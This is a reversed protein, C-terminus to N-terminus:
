ARSGRIGFIAMMSCILGWNILGCVFDYGTIALKKDGIPVPVITNTLGSLNIFKLSPLTCEFYIILSLAAAGVLVGKEKKLSSAQMIGIAGLCYITICSYYLIDNPHPSFRPILHNAQVLIETTERLAAYLIPPNVLTATFSHTPNSWIAWILLCIYMILSLASLNFWIKLSIKGQTIAGLVFCAVAAPTSILISMGATTLIFLMYFEAGPQGSASVKALSEWPTLILTAIIPILVLSAGLLGLKFLPDAERSLDNEEPEDDSRIKFASMLREQEAKPIIGHRLSEGVDANPNALTAHHQYKDGSKNAEDDAPIISSTSEDKISLPSMSGAFFKLAEVISVGRRVPEKSLLKSCMRLLNPPLTSDEIEILNGNIINNNIEAVTEGAIPLKGSLLQYFVVGLSYLDSLKSEPNNKSIEPAKYKIIQLLEKDEIADSYPSLSVGFDAVKTFGTKDTFISSPYINGHIVGHEHIAAIGACIDRMLRRAADISVMGQSITEALSLGDVHERSIFILEETKNVEFIRVINAHNIERSIQLERYLKEKDVALTYLNPNFIKLEVNFGDLVTDAALYTTGLYDKGLYKIIQYRGAFLETYNQLDDLRAVDV